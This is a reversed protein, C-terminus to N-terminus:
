SPPARFPPVRSTQTSSGAGPSIRARTLNEEEQREEERIAEVRRFRDESLYELLAVVFAVIAGGTLQGGFERVQDVSIPTHPLWWLLFSVKRGSFEPWVWLLLGVVVLVLAVIWVVWFAATAWCGRATKTDKNM